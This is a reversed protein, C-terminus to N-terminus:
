SYKRIQEKLEKRNQIMEKNTEIKKSILSNEDREIGIENKYFAGFLHCGLDHNEFLIKDPTFYQTLNDHKATAMTYTQNFGTKNLLETVNHMTLGEKICVDFILTPTKNKTLYPQEKKFLEVEEEEVGRNNLIKPNLFYINPQKTEDNAKWYEKFIQYAPRASRDLFIINEINKEKCFEYMQKGIEPMANLKKQKFKAKLEESM